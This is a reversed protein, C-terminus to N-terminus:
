SEQRNGYTGGIMIPNDQSKLYHLTFGKRWSLIQHGNEGKEYNVRKYDVHAKEGASINYTHIRLHWIDTFHGKREADEGGYLTMMGNGAELLNSYMLRYPPLEGKEEMSIVDYEIMDYLFSDRVIYNEHNVGGYVFMYRSNVLGTSHGWRCFITPDAIPSRVWINEFKSEQPNEVFSVIKDLNM